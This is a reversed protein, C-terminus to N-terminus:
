FVRQGPHDASFGQHLPGYYPGAAGQQSYHGLSDLNLPMGAGVKEFYAVGRLGQAYSARDGVMEKMDAQLDAKLGALFAKEEERDKWSESWNHFWISISVAFVIILIEGIIEQEAMSSFYSIKSINTAVHFIGVGDYQEQRGGEAAAVKEARPIHRAKLTHAGVKVDKNCSVVQQQAGVCSVGVFCFRQVKHFGFSLPFRVGLQILVTCGCLAIVVLM